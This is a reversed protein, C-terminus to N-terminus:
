KFILRSMLLKSYDWNLLQPRMNLTESTTTDGAHWNNSKAIIAVILLANIGSLADLTPEFNDCFKQFGNEFQNPSM